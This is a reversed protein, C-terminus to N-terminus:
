LYYNKNKLGLNFEQELKFNSEEFYSKLKKITADNMFIKQKKGKMLVKMLKSDIKKIIDIKQLSYPFAKALNNRFSRYHNVKKSMGSNEKKNKLLKFTEKYDIELFRSIYKAFTELNDKLDEFLFVGVNEKGFLDSYFKITKFYNISELFNIFPNDLDREVWQDINVSKHNSYLNRPDFPHDRYQSKIIDIQNRIVIIIKANPFYNKIRKAKEARDPHAFLVSLFFENSFVNIKSNELHNKVNKYTENVKSFYFEIGELKTLQNHFSRLESHQFYLSDKNIEKTFNGLDGQPYLGLFNLESHRDFLHKQLTSSASKPYGVHFVVKENM